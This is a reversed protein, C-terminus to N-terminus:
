NSSHPLEKLIFMDMEREEPVLQLHVSSLRKNLGEIDLLNAPLEIDTGGTYGTEDLVPPMGSIKNLEYVLDAPTAQWAHNSQGNQQVAIDREQKCSPPIVESDNTYELVQCGIKRKEISASVHLYNDLYEKMQKKLDDVTFFGPAVVEYGIQNNHQWVDRYASGEKFFYHSSDKVELLRRNAAFPLPTNMALAYLHLVSFNIFYFRQTDHASDKVLGAKTDLGDIHPFLATYFKPANVDSRAELLPQTYDFDLIDKKVPWNIKENNLVKQINAATIYDQITVAKVMGTRVDIWVEHPLLLPKFYATLLTDETVVPISIGSAKHNKKLFSRVLEKDEYTVALIQVEGKFAKQLSDLEPLLRICSSCTTTLFDLIVLKSKFGSLRASSVPYNIINKVLVDPCHDGATLTKVQAQAQLVSIFLFLFFYRKM